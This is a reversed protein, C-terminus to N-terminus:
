RSSLVNRGGPARSQERPQPASRLCRQQRYETPVCCRKRIQSINLQVIKPVRISGPRQGQALAQRHDPLEKTVRLHLCGSAVGVKGPIRDLSGRSPDCPTDAGIKSKSIRGILINSLDYVELAEAMSGFCEEGFLEESYM